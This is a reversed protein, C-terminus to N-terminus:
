YVWMEFILVKPPLFFFVLKYSSKVQLVNVIFNEGRQCPSVNEEMRAPSSLVLMSNWKVTFEWTSTLATVYIAELRILAHAGM